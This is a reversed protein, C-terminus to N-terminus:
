DEDLEHQRAAERLRNAMADFYAAVTLKEGPLSEPSSLYEAMISELEILQQDNGLFRSEEDRNPFGPPTISLTPSKGDSHSGMM